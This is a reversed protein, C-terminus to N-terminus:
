DKIYKMSVISGTHKMPAVLTLALPHFMLNLPGLTEPFSTFTQRRM